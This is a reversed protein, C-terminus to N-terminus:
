QHYTRIGESNFWYLLSFPTVIFLRFFGASSLALLCRPVAYLALVFLEVWTNASCCSSKMSLGLCESVEVFSNSRM